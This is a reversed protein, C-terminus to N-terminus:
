EFLVTRAASQKCGERDIAQFLMEWGRAVEPVLGAIAATGNGDAFASAAATPGAILVTAGLCGPISTMGPAAGYVLTIRRGPAAGTVTFTNEVGAVGPDPESLDLHAPTMVFGSEIGEHRGYGVIQGADNIGTAVAASEWASGPPLLDAFLDYMTEDQWLFAVNWFNSLVSGGVVQDLNNVGNAWSQDGGLHGLDIMDGPGRWLFAHQPSTASSAAGVVHGADNLDIAWSEIGAFPPIETFVGDTWLFGRRFGELNYAEVALQGANNIAHASSGFRGPEGIDRLVGESSLVAARGEMAVPDRGWALVEGADNVDVCSFLELYEDGSTILREFPVAREGRGWVVAADYFYYRDRIREVFTSVGVVQSANNIGPANSLQDGPLGPLITARGGRIVLGQTRGRDADTVALGAIEGRANIRWPYVGPWGTLDNLDNLDLISYRPTNQGLAAAGIFPWALTAAAAGFRRFVVGRKVIPHRM